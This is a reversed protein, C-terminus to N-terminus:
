VKSLFLQSEYQQIFVGSLLSNLYLKGLQTFKLYRIGDQIYPLVGKWFFTPYSKRVDEPSKWGNKVAEGTEAFEHFLAPIKKLYRPDSLQGMLDAARVLGPYNRTDQHDGDQPVPFKTLEINAAVVECDIYPSNAFRERIFLKGRDVHYKTLAADTSGLPVTFTKPNDVGTAFEYTQLNDSKCIGKVYGIDHFLLSIIFNLWDRPTVDGDRMHKGTLTAQLHITPTVGLLRGIARPHGM